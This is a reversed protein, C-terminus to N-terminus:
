DKNHEPDFLNKYEWCDALFKAKYLPTSADYGATSLLTTYNFFIGTVGNVNVERNGSASIDIMFTTPTELGEGNDDIAKQLKEISSKLTSKESTTVNLLLPYDENESYEGVISDFLNQHEEFVYKALYKGDDNTTDVMVSYLKYPSSTDDVLTSFKSEFEKFGAVCDKCYSCDETVFTLFFKQGYKGIEETDKTELATLLKDLDSEHTEANTLSIAKGKYFEVDEDVKASEVATEIGSKIYPISFIIAFIGGVILLPQIWATNAIWRGIKVFFGGIVRLVNKM